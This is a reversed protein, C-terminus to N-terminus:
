VKTWYQAYGEITQKIAQESKFDGIGDFKLAVGRFQHTTQSGDIENIYIFITGNTSTGSDASGTAWWGAEIQSFLAENASGVRDLSFKLTHGEPLFRKQKPANLSKSMVETYESKHSFDTVSGLDIRTGNPAIVVAQADRGVTFSGTTM